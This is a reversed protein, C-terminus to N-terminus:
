EDELEYMSSDFNDNDNSDDDNWNSHDNKKNKKNPQSTSQSKKVSQTKVTSVTSNYEIKDGFTARIAEDLTSCEIVTIDKPIKIAKRIKGTVIVNFGLMAAEKIRIEIHSVSQITGNLGIEGVVLINPPVPIEHFSSCLSVAVALDPSYDFVKMGGNISLYIDKDTLDIYNIFKDIVAAIAHLRQVNFGTSRRIPNFSASASTLTQVDLLIPRTGEVTATVASGSRNTARESLFKASPDDVSSMGDEGMEFVGIETQSGFRNKEVRLIRYMQYQDGELYFIGDVYHNLANPGAIDGAKTVQGIMITTLGQSKTLAQIQSACYKLQTPSGMGSPITSSMITSISDIILFQPKLKPIHEEIITELDNEFVVYMEGFDAKIRDARAKIQEESEEGSVYLVTGIRSLLGCMKLTLTSKGMGPAGGMLLISGRVLGGGFVRDLEDINTKVRTMDSSTVKSIHQPMSKKYGMPKNITVHASPKNSPISAAEEYSNTVHCKTCIAPKYNSTQGCNNCIYNSLKKSAM